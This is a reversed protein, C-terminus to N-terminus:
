DKLLHKQCAEVEESAAVLISPLLVDPAERRVFSLFAQYEPLSRSGGLISKKWTSWTLWVYTTHTHSKKEKSREQLKKHYSTM